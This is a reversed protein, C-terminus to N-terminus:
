QTTCDLFSQTFQLGKTPDDFEVREGACSDHVRIVIGQNVFNLEANGVRTVEGTSTNCFNGGNGACGHSVFTCQTATYHYIGNADQIVDISHTVPGQVDQNDKCSLVTIEGTAAYVSTAAFVALLCFLKNM